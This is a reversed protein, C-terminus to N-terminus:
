LQAKARYMIPTGNPAIPTADTVTWTDNGDVIKCTGDVEFLLGKAPILFTATKNSELTEGSRNAAIRVRVIKVRMEQKAGLVSSETVPDAVVQQKSVTVRKGYQFLLRVALSAYSDAYSTM